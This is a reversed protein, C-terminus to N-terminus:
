NPAEGFESYPLTHPVAGGRRESWEPKGVSSVLIYMYALETM